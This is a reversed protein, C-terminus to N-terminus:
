PDNPLQTTRDLADAVYLKKVLVFAAVTLPAAIVVGVGGFLGGFLFVALLFLAPPVSVTRQQVMPLVVNSEIQQVALFLLATWLVVQGGQAAALALAPIAGAVAGIVPVFGALGAFIGLGLPSPLGLAWTGAAVLTGILAMSVLQGLLWQFLGAGCQRLADDVRGDEDRPFMMAVGRRYLGPESALFYGAVIVLVLAGLGGVVNFGWVAASTFWDAFPTAADVLGGVGGGGAEAGTGGGSAAGAEGTGGGPAQEGGTRAGGAPDGGGAPVGTGGGGAAGGSGEAGAAGRPLGLRDRLLPEVERLASWLRGAEAAVRGGVLWGALGLAAALAAAGLPLAWRRPVGAHVRLPRAAADFIVGAVVAAFAMLLAQRAQWALFLLAAAGAVVAVRVVFARLDQAGETTAPARRRADPATADRQM